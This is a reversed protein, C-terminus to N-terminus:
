INRKKIKITRSNEHRVNNLNDGTTQRPNQLRQLRAQKMENLLKSCEKNIWPKHQRLEYRGLSETTSVKM